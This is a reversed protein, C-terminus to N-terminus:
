TDVRQLVMGCWEHDSDRAMEMWGYTAYAAAVLDGEHAQIGALILARGCAQVLRPAIEILLHGYINAVVVDWTGDIWRQTLDMTQLEIRDTAANRELNERAATLALEDHDVGVIREAGMHLAAISVIASGTGADFVSDGPRVHQEVAELCFRTTFHKGTGFSLGPNIVIRHREHSNTEEAEWHPVILFREGISLTTFHKRWFAQWDRDPCDRVESVLGFTQQLALGAVRAELETEFYTELWLRRRDPKSLEVPTTDFQAEIWDTVSTVETPDLETSLVFLDM